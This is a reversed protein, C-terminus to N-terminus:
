FGSNHWKKPPMHILQSYAVLYISSKEVHPAEINNIPKRTNLCMSALNRMYADAFLATMPESLPKDGARCWAMIVVLPLKKDILSHPVFKLPNQKLEFINM